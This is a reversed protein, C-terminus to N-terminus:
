RLANAAEVKRQLQTISVSDRLNDPVDGLNCVDPRM